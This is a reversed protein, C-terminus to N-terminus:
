LKAAQSPFAKLKCSITLVQSMLENYKM